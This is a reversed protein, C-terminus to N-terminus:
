KWGAPNLMWPEIHIEDEMQVTNNSWSQDTLDTMWYELQIEEEIEEQATNRFANMDTMWNEIAMKEEIALEGALKALEENELHTEAMISMCIRNDHKEEVPSLANAMTSYLSVLVVITLVVSQKKSLIGNLTKM